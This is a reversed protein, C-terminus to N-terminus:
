KVRGASSSRSYCLQSGERVASAANAYVWRCCPDYNRVPMQMLAHPLRIRLSYQVVVMASACVLPWSNEGPLQAACCREPSSCAREAAVGAARTYEELAAAQRCTRRQQCGASGTCGAAQGEQAEGCAACTFLGGNSAGVPVHKPSCCVDQGGACLDFGPWLFLVLNHAFPVFCMGHRASGAACHCWSEMKPQSEDIQWACAPLSQCMRAQEPTFLPDETIRRLQRLVHEPITDREYRMLRDIFGPEGLVRKASDWDTREKFLFRHLCALM